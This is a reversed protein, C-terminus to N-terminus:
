TAGPGAAAPQQPASTALAAEIKTRLSSVAPAKPTAFACDAMEDIWASLLQAEDRTLMAAEAARLRGQLNRIHDNMTNVPIGTM